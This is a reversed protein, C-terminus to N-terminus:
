TLSIQMGWGELLNGTDESIEWRQESSTWSAVPADCLHIVLHRQFCGLGSPPFQLAPSSLSAVTLPGEGQGQCPGGGVRLKGTAELSHGGKKTKEDMQRSQAWGGM